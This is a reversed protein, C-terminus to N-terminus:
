KGFFLDQSNCVWKWLGELDVKGTIYVRLIKFKVANRMDATKTVGLRFRALPLHQQQICLLMASDRSTSM